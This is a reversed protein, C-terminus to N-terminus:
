FCPFFATRYTGTYTDLVLEMRTQIWRKNKNGKSISREDNANVSQSDNELPRRVVSSRRAQVAVEDDDDVDPALSNFREETVFSSKVVM